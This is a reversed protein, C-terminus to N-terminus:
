IVARSEDGLEAEALVAEALRVGIAVHRPDCEAVARLYAEAMRTVDPTAVDTVGRGVARIGGTEPVSPWQNSDLTARQTKSAAHCPRSTTERAARAITGEALHAYRETTSVSRHGLLEAVEQLTWRRGWVGSVLMSACTHRLSHWVM